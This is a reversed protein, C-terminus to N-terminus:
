MSVCISFQTRKIASITAAFLIHGCIHQCLHKLEDPLGKLNHGTNVVTLAISEVVKDVVPKIRTNRIDYQIRLGHKHDGKDVAFTCILRKAYALSHYELVAAVTTVIYVFEPTYAMMRGISRPVGLSLSVLKRSHSRSDAKQISQQICEGRSNPTAKASLIGMCYEFENKDIRERALWQLLMAGGNVLSNGRVSLEAIARTLDLARTALDM